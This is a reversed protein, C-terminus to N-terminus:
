RWVRRLDRGRVDVFMTAPDVLDPNSLASAGLVVVFGVPILTYIFLGYGASLTMAIKGDREPNRTEGIYCAAAEYAIVNWTLLFSFAARHLGHAMRPGRAGLLLKSGDLQTFGSLEGFDYAGPNFIWAVALFTLPIM